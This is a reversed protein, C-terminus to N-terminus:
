LVSWNEIGYALRCVFYAVYAWMLNIFASLSTAYITPKIKM